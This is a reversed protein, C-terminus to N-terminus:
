ARNETPLWCGATEKRCQLLSIESVRGPIYWRGGGKGERKCCMSAGRKGRQQKGEKELHHDEVCEWM